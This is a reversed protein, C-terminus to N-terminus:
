SRQYSCRLIEYAERVAIFEKEDGGKDPHHQRALRRYGECISLWDADTDLGLIQLAYQQKDAAAYRRWFGALLQLVETEGTADYNNWDLYYERLKVDVHDPLHTGTNETVGQTLAINLASVALYVGETVLEAQLTYLANMVMFHKKFLTLQDSGAGVNFLVGNSEIQRILEYESLSSQRNRLIHLIPITLSNHYM